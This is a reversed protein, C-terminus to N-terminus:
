DTDVVPCLASVAAVRLEQREVLPDEPRDDHGPAHDREEGDDAHREDELEDDHQGPHPNRGVRDEHAERLPDGGRIVLDPPALEDRRRSPRLTIPRLRGRGAAAALVALNVCRVTRAYLGAGFARAARGLLWSSSLHWLGCPRNKARRAEPRLEGALLLQIDLREASPGGAPATRTMDLVSARRAHAADM